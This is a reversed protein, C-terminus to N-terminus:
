LRLLMGLMKMHRRLKLFAKTILATQIPFFSISTMSKAQADINDLYKNYDTIARFEDQLEFLLKWNYNYDANTNNAREDIWQMKEQETMESIEDHISRYQEPTYFYSNATKILLYANLIFMIFVILLFIKNSFLKRLETSVVRM